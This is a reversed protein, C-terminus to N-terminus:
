HKKKVWIEKDILSQLHRSLAARDEGQANDDDMRPREAQEVAEAARSLRWTVGEDVLGAMDLAADAIERRAGRRADLKAFAEAVCMLALDPDADPRVPPASVVHSQAFLSELAAAETQAIRARVDAAGDRGVERLLAVRIGDLGPAQLEVAELESVFRTVLSFHQIMTALMVSELLMEEVQADGPMALASSRASASPPLAADIRPGGKFFPRRTFQPGFLQKQLQRIEEDYHLRISPDVIRTVAARLTKTLAAKREPSDFVRGETERAWLLAVMPRAADIVKQM